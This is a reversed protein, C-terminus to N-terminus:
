ERATEVSAPTRAHRLTEERGHEKLRGVDGFRAFAAQASLRFARGFVSVRGEMDVDIAFQGVPIAYFRFGNFGSIELEREEVYVAATGMAGLSAYVKPFVANFNSQQFAAYMLTSVDDLWIAVERNRMLQADTTVLSFWRTSASMIAGMLFSALKRCADPATSDYLRQTQRQGPLSFDLVRRSNPRIFEAQERWEPEWNRRKDLM